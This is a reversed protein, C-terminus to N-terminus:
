ITSPGPQQTGAKRLLRAIHAANASTGALLTLAGGAVAARHGAMAGWMLIPLGVTWLVFVANALRPEILRHVSQQPLAGDRGEVARYWAFL